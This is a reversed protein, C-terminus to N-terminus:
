KDLILAITLGIVMILPLLIFFIIQIKKDWKKSWEIHRRYQEVSDLWEKEKTIHGKKDTEYTNM